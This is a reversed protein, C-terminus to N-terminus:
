TRDMEKEEKEVSKREDSFYNQLLDLSIRITETKQNVISWIGCMRAIDKSKNVYVM